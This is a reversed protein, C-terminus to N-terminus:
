LWESRIKEATHRGFGRLEDGRKMMLVAPGVLPRNGNKVLDAPSINTAKANVPKGKLQGEEDLILVLLDAEEQAWTADLACPVVEIDGDVLKQLTELKMGAGDDCKMTFSKNRAPIVIVYRDM